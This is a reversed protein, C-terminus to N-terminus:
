LGDCDGDVSCSLKELLYDPYYSMKAKRLGEIGMDEERNVYTLHSWEHKLFQQNIFPYLGRINANAKEMHILATDKNLEEGFTLAEIKEDVFVVAGKICLDEYENLMRKLVNIEHDLGDQEGKELHWREILELCEPKLSKDYTRYEYKYNNFFYNLHNRKKSYKKGTLNILDEVKYIYDYSERDEFFHHNSKIESDIKEKLEKIVGKICFSEGESKMHNWLENFAFNIDQEMDYLFPALYARKGTSGLFNLYMGHEGFAINIDVEYGWLYLSAFSSEANRYYYRSIVDNFRDRDKKDIREFNLM